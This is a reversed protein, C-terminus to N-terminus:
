AVQCVVYFGHNLRCCLMLPFILGVRSMSTGLLVRLTFRMVMRIGIASVIEIHPGTRSCTRIERTFRSVANRPGAEWARECIQSWFERQTLHCSTISQLRPATPSQANPKIGSGLVSKNRFTAAPTDSRKSYIISGREAPDQEAAQVCM